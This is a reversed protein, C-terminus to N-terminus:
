VMSILRVNRLFMEYVVDNHFMEHKKTHFNLDGARLLVETITWAYSNRMKQKANFM